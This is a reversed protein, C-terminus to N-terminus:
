NRMRSRQITLIIYLGFAASLLYGLPVFELLTRIGFHEAVPTLALFIANAVAWTGGVMLGMRLGFTPGTANRALTIMLVYASIACAGAGFLMWVAARNDILTLYALLCINFIIYQCWTLALNLSYTQGEGERYPLDM